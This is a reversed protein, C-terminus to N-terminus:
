MRARPVDHRVPAITAPLQLTATVTGPVTPGSAATAQDTLWRGVDAPSAAPDASLYRAAAGAVFAAALSTGSSLRYGADTTTIVSAGPAWLDVCRGTASDAYAGAPTAAAVTIVAPVRAPSRDCADGGTNGASVVVVLGARVAALAAADTTPDAWGGASVNIVGPEGPPHHDVIWNLAPAIGAGDGRGACDFARVPIITAAPAVGVTTGAIAQAVRTGHGNCDGTGVSGPLLSVGGSVRRALQTSSADVGTDIVYVAVGQGASAPDLVYRGDLAGDISDLAWGPLLPSPRGERGDGERSGSDGAANAPVASALVAAVLLAALTPLHRIM